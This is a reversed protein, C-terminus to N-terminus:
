QLAEEMRILFEEVEDPNRLYYRARTRRPRGVRVTLGRRLVGFASEDTIDDGVFIPLRHNGARALAAEVAAGKGPWELPVVEWVKKGLIFRLSKEEPKLTRRFIDWAQRLAVGDAERYHVVFSFQKDEIWVHGLGALRHALQNKVRRLLTMSARSSSSRAEQEWGYLGLYRIGAVGVRKQVDARRRGTIVILQLGRLKTLRGLLDRVANGLRPEEPHLCLPVLTGDFDLFLSIGRATKLRRSLKPWHLFLHEPRHFDNASYKTHAGSWIVGGARM